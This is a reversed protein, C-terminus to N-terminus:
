RTTQDKVLCARTGAGTSSSFSAATPRAVPPRQGADRSAQARPGNQTAQARAQKREQGSEREKADVEAHAEARLGGPHVGHGPPAAQHKAGRHFWRRGQPRDRQSGAPLHRGMRRATRSASSGCAALEGGGARRPTRDFERRRSSTGPGGEARAGESALTEHSGAHADARTRRIAGDGERHFRSGARVRDRRGAREARRTCLPLRERHAQDPLGHQRRRAPELCRRHSGLRARHADRVQQPPAGPSCSRSYRLRTAPRGRERPDSAADRIGPNTWCTGQTPSPDQARVRPPPLAYENLRAISTGGAAGGADCPAHMDSECPEPPAPAVEGPGRPADDQDKRARARISRRACGHGTTAM